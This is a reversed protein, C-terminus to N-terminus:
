RENPGKGALIAPVAKEIRAARTEPRKAEAIHMVYGRKRGPTLAEFAKAVRTNKELFAVLEAPLELERSAKFDVKLGAKEAAIAQKVYDRIAKADIDAVRTVELRTASQTNEGQRRLLGRKDELLAGKFFMLACLAKFPQIIAVNAGEFTYCPKGWKIEEALGCELLLGRLAEMEPRWATAKTIFADVQPNRSTSRKM